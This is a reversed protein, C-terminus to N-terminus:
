RRSRLRCYEPRLVDIKIHESRLIGPVCQKDGRDEAIRIADKICDSLDLASYISSDENGKAFDLFIGTGCGSLGFTQIKYCPEGCRCYANGEIIIFRESASQVEKVVENKSRHRLVFDPTLYRRWPIDSFAYEITESGRCYSLQAEKYFSGNYYRVTVPRSKFQHIVMVEPAESEPVERIEAKITQRYPIARKKRCGPPVEVNVYEIEVDILM